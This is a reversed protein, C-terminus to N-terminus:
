TFKDILADISKENMITMKTNDLNIRTQNDIICGEFKTNNLIAGNFTCGHFICNTFTTLSLNTGIFSTVSFHINILHSFSLNSGIFDRGKLVVGGGNGNIGTFSIDMLSFDDTFCGSM